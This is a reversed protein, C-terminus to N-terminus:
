EKYMGALLLTCQNLFLFDIVEVKNVCQSFDCPLVLVMGRLEIEIGLVVNV